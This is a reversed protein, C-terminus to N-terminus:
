FLDELSVKKAEDTTLGTITRPKALVIFSRAKKTYASYGTEMTVGYSLDGEEMEFPSKGEKVLGARKIISGEQAEEHGQAIAGAAYVSRLLSFGKLEVPTLGKTGVELVEVVVYNRM